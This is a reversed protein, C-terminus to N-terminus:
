SSQSIIIFLTRWDHMLIHLIVRSKIILEVEHPTKGCIRGDDCLSFNKFCM